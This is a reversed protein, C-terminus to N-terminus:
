RYFIALIAGIAAALATIYKIWRYPARITEILTDLQETVKELLKNSKNATSTIHDKLEQRFGNKFQDTIDELHELANEQKLRIETIEPDYQQHM